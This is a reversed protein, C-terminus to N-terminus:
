AASSRILLGDIEMGFEFNYEAYCPYWGAYWIAYIKFNGLTTLSFNHTGVASNDLGNELYNQWVKLNKIEDPQGIEEIVPVVADGAARTAAANQQAYFDWNQDAPVNGFEKAFKTSFEIEKSTHNWDYDQCASLCVLM